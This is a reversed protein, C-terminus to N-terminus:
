GRLSVSPPKLTEVMLGMVNGTGPAPARQTTTHNDKNRTLSAQLDAVRTSPAPVSDDMRGSSASNSLRSGRSMNRLCEEDNLRPCLLDRPRTTVPPISYKFDIITQELDNRRADVYCFANAARINSSRRNLVDSGCLFELIKTWLGRVFNKVRAWWNNRKSGVEIIVGPPSTISAKVSCNHFKVHGNAEESIECRLSVVADHEVKSDSSGVPITCRLDETIVFSNKKLVEVKRMLGRSRPALPIDEGEIFLIGNRNTVIRSSANLERTLPIMIDFFLSSSFGGQHCHTVIEDMLHLSPRTINPKKLVRHLIRLSLYRDAYNRRFETWWMNYNDKAMNTIGPPGHISGSEQIGELIKTMEASGYSKGNFVWNCRTVDRLFTDGAVNQSNAYSVCLTKKFNFKELVKLLTQGDLSKTIQHSPAMSRSKRQKRAEGSICSASAPHQPVTRKGNTIARRKQPSPTRLFLARIAVQPTFRSTMDSMFGAISGLKARATELAATVTINTRGTLSKQLAATGRNREVGQEEGPGKDTTDEAVSHGEEPVARSGAQHPTEAVQNDNREEAKTKSQMSYVGDAPTESNKTSRWQLVAMRSNGGLIQMSALIYPRPRIDRVSGMFVAWINAIPMSLNALRQTEHKQSEVGTKVESAAERNNSTVPVTHKKTTHPSAPM